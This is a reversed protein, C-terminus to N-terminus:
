IETPFIYDSSFSTQNFIIYNSLCDKLSVPVELTPRLSLFKIQQGSKIPSFSEAAAPVFQVKERVVEAKRQIHKLALRIM